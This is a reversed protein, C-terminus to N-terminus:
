AQVETIGIQELMNIVQELWEADERRVTHTGTMNRLYDALIAHRRTGEISAASKEDPMGQEMRASGPCAERRYLVSPSNIDHKEM